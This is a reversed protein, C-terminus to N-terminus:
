QKHNQWLDLVTAKMKQHFIADTFKQANAICDDPKVAIKEFQQVADALSKVTQDAFFVGTKNSLVTELAGGKAFAIVPTGSAQAELPVIGFDEEQPFIVAKAYRYFESLRTDDVDGVFSINSLAIKKLKEMESGIGVVILPLKLKNFALVTLHVKKYPVLRGVSLYYDRNDSSITKKSYFKDEIPPFIIKSDRNYYKKVRRQVESSISIYHDPRSSTLLDITCFYKKLLSPLIRMKKDKSYEGEGSWFYRTPTLCYCIHLQNPRTIVSKADGSTVSIVVDFGGLDLSEFAMPAIPALWEHRTRLLPIKNLFTPIIQIGTAWKAAAKDHVLTFIPADPFINHLSLLVREAGGIKNVRDYVLAVKPTKSSM